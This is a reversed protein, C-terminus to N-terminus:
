LEGGNGNGDGDEGHQETGRAPAGDSSTTQKEQSSSTDSGGRRLVMKPTLKVAGYGTAWGAILEIDGLLPEAVDEHDNATTTTAAGTTNVRLLVDGDHRTSSARNGDCMAGPGVFAAGKGNTADVDVVFQVNKNRLSPPVKLRVKLLTSSVNNYVPPPFLERHNQPSSSKWPDRTRSSAYPQVEIYVRSEQPQNAFPLISQRM